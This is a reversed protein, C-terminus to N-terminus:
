DLERVGLALPQNFPDALRDLFDLGDFAVDVPEFPAQLHGPVVSAFVYFLLQPLVLGAQRLELLLVLRRRDSQLARELGDDIALSLGSRRLVLQDLGVQAQHNGDGLLIGVAAQLKQVQDLLTIDPQHLRHVLELVAPPVLEGSVGGPPNPLRDRAGDGVLRAGDADGHM